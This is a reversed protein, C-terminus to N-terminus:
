SRLDSTAVPPGAFGCVCTTACHESWAGRMAIIISALPDATAPDLTTQLDDALMCLCRCARVLNTHVMCPHKSRPNSAAAAYRSLQLSWLQPSVTALCKLLRWAAIPRVLVDPSLASCGPWQQQAGWLLSAGFLLPNVQTCTLARTPPLNTQLTLGHPGCYPHLSPCFLSCGAAGRNCLFICKVYCCFLV